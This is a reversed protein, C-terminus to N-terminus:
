GCGQFHITFPPYFKTSTSIRSLTSPSSSRMALVRLGAPPSFPPSINRPPSCARLTRKAWRSASAPTCSWRGERLARKKWPQRQRRSCSENSLVVVWLSAMRISLPWTLALTKSRFRLLVQGRQQVKNAQRGEGDTGKEGRERGAERMGSERGKRGANGRNRM